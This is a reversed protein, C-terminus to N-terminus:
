SSHIATNWIFVHFLKGLLVCNSIAFNIILELDYM